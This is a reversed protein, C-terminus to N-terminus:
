RHSHPVNAGALTQDIVGDDNWDLQFTYVTSPSAGGNATLNTPAASNGTADLAGDVYLKVTTGSRTIVVFHFAGDNITANSTLIVYNTGGGDQDLECRLTDGEGDALRYWPELPLPPPVPNVLRLAIVTAAVLGLLGWALLSKM